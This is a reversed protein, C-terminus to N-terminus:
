GDEEVFAWVQDALGSAPVALPIPLLASGDIRVRAEWAGVEVAEFAFARAGAGADFVRIHSLGTAVSRLELMADSGELAEPLTFTGEVRVGRLAVEQPTPFGGAPVDLVLTARGSADRANISVPGARKLMMTAVGAGDTEVRKGSAFFMGGETKHGVAVEISANALALGSEARVFRLPLPTEALDFDVRLSEGRKLEIEATDLVADSPQEQAPDRIAITLPTSVPQQKLEYRGAGDTVCTSFHKRAARIEVALDARPLGNWRVTGAVTGHDALPSLDVDFTAPADEHLDVRVEARPREIAMGLAFAAEAAPIGVPRAAICVVCAGAPLREFRVEGRDDLAALRPLEESGDRVMAIALLPERPPVGGVHVRGSLSCGQGLALVHEREAHEARAHLTAYAPHEVTFRLTRGAAAGQFSARGDGDTRAIRAAEIGSVEVGVRAHEVARGTASDVVRVEVKTGLALRLEREVREDHVDVLLSAEAYGAATASAVYRGPALGAIAYRGDPTRELGTDIRAHVRPALDDLDIPRGPALRLEAAPVPAGSPDLVALLLTSTPPLALDLEGGADASAFTWDHQPSRRAAVLVSADEPLGALEFRSTSSATAAPHLWRWESLSLAPGAIVEAGSVPAGDAGRVSIALTAGRRLLVDPFDSEGGGGSPRPPRVCEAFGPKDVLLTILGQPVAELVYTGDAATEAAPLPLAALAADLWAPTEIVRADVRAAVKGFLVRSGPRLAALYEAAYPVPFVGARVRAGAVPDGEEGVVRGRILVSAALRIDGLDTTAGPRLPADILHLDARPGKPDIAIAHWAQPEAATFEFRGADDTTTDGALISPPAAAGSADIRAPAQFEFPRVELLRLAAHALPQGEALLIRGRVRALAARYSAPATEAPAPAEGEPASSVAERESAQAATSSEPASPPAPDALAAAPALPPAGESARERLLLAATAALLLAATLAALKKVALGGLVGLGSALPPAGSLRAAHALVRPRVAALSNRAGAAAFAAGALGPPLLARLLALGRALQTRVTAPRQGTREALERGGAGEALHPVLVARYRAPLRELARRVSDDLERAEAAASPPPEGGTGLRRPDPTRGERRRGHAARRVLIGFLWPLLPRGRQYTPAHELAALFTEQLADEAAAKDKCLHRAVRFLEPAARDFVAGLEAVDGGSRYREFSEELSTDDM